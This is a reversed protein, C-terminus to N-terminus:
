RIPKEMYEKQLEQMQKAREQMQAASEEDFLIATRRIALKMMAKSPKYSFEMDDVIMAADRRSVGSTRLAAVAESKTLGAKMAIKVTRRMDNWAENHMKMSREYASRMDDLDVKSMDTAVDRLTKAAARKQDLYGYAQYTLGVKANLTGKRFGLLALAEDEFTYKKGSKTVTQDAANWFGTINGWFGPALGKAFTSASKEATVGPDRINDFLEVLEGAAIDLGIFPSLAEWIADKARDGADGDRSLASLPKKWYAYPDLWGLDMYQVHGDEDRGLFFLSSNRSWEPLMQRVAEEEEDDVGLIAASMASIGAMMGAGLALGVGKAIVAPNGYGLAKADKHFYRFKHYTTRIVEAPFSPFAGVVPFRRLAQIGKGVLSYTPYTNRIREAAEKEADVNSMAYQKMLMAKENEFGMIKWFDDGLAYFEQAYNLLASLKSKKAAQALWGESENVSKILEQLERYNPADYLVGLKLLKNIYERSGHVDKGTFYTKVVKASNSLETVDWHGSTLSFMSASLFNRVATTPALVTKGYKVAGNAIVLAKYWDPEKNSGVADQLAQAFEPYTYMGNLPSYVDSADGAIKKHAGIPRNSEDFLLGLGIAADKMQRLFATNNVLRTMKTASKAYNVAPDEYEGLLARIEPAIQKRTKLVSLDKSGLKSESIFRGMSDYATGEHLILDVKKAAAKVDGNYQGALYNVAALYVDEPVKKPWEPDDFARYSRHLYNDYNGVITEILDRKQQAEETKGESELNAADLLLEDIYANSLSQIQARMKTLVNVMSLTLQVNNRDGKLYDNIEKRTGAKLQAYPKKYVEQVKNYFDTLIFRQQSDNANMAGDRAIKLDFIERPLLGRPALQRKVETKIKDFFTKNSGGLQNYADRLQHPLTNLSYLISGLRETRKNGLAALIRFQEERTGRLISNTFIARELTTRGATITAKSKAGETRGGEIIAQIAARDYIKGNDIRRIEDISPDYRLNEIEPFQNKTANYSVTIMEKLNHADDGNKWKIGPVGISAKGELQRDHPKLHKTSGFKLASSIMNELRRTLAIDSLGAPDGVFVLDNNFAYNAVANYIRRGGQGTEVDAVDIWVSDGKQFVLAMTYKDPNIKWVKAGGDDFQPARAFPMGPLQESFIDEIKKKSSIPLQFVDDDQALMTWAALLPDSGIVKRSEPHLSFMANIEKRDEPSADSLSYILGLVDGPKGKTIVERSQKLLYRMDSETIKALNMFGNKRLWARIAGILEQATRVVFPKHHEAMHALLEEAIIAYSLERPQDKYAEEYASLSMGYKEALDRVAKQGGIQMYLKGMISTVSSGFLGRLGLHTYVEHFIMREVTEADHVQDLNIWIENTKQDFLANIKKDNASRLQSKIREPFDDVTNAIKISVDVAWNKSINEVVKEAEAKTIKPDFNTGDSEVFSFRGANPERYMGESIQFDKNRGKNEIFGFNKYFRVLRSRSTTGHNDNPLGPSLLIRVNHKDAFEVIRRIAETGIGNGQNEKPVVINSIVIENSRSRYTLFLSKLGLESEISDALDNLSSQSLDEGDLSFHINSDTPKERDTVGFEERLSEWAQRNISESTDSNLENYKEFPLSAYAKDLEIEYEDELKKFANDYGPSGRKLGKAVAMQKVYLNKTRTLIPPLDSSTKKVPEQNLKAEPKTLPVENVKVQEVPKVLAKIKSLSDATAYNNGSDFAKQDAFVMFMKQKNGGVTMSHDAIIQGDDSVWSKPSRRKWPRQADTLTGVSMDTGDALANAKSAKSIEDSIPKTTDGTKLWEKFEDVSMSTIPGVKWGKSYNKSYGTKARLPSDYGLMVKHEDFSGDPNIQDVIFVKESEPNPGVFVDVHDGDAGETKKIYGYHSHMEVEWKKGKSDTGSRISGKPNEIAIDLGHIRAHGKRYNGAEKQAETPEPLDNEPSTAAESAAIDLQESVSVGASPPPETLAEPTIEPPANPTEEALGRSAQAGERSRGQAQARAQTQRHENRASWILNTLAKSQQDIDSLELAADIQKWDAGMTVAHDVLEAVARDDYDLDVEYDTETYTEGAKEPSVMSIFDADDPVSTELKWSDFAAKRADRALQRKAILEAAYQGREGTIHDLAAGVIRAERVGLKEGALAKQIASKAHVVSMSVDPNENASKFWDPNISPTRGVIRDNSDRVFSVGGGQVLERAARELQSRYEPRTLRADNMGAPINADVRADAKGPVLKTEPPYTESLESVPQRNVIPEVSAQDMLRRPEGFLASDEETYDIAPSESRIPTNKIQQQENWFKEAEQASQRQQIFEESFGQTGNNAIPNLEGDNFNSAIPSRSLVKQARYDTQERLLQNIEDDVSIPADLSQEISEPTETLRPYAPHKSVIKQTEDEVQAGPIESEWATTGDPMVIMRQPKHELQLPAVEQNPSYIISEGNAPADIDNDNDTNADSNKIDVYSRIAGTPAGMTAGAGAGVVGQEASQKFMELYDIAADTGVREGLYQIINQNFETAFEITGAAAAVKSTNALAYKVAGDTIQRQAEGSRSGFLFKPLMRELIGVSLGVGTAVSIDNSSPLTASNNKRREEAVDGAVSLATTPMNLMYPVSGAIVEPVATAFNDATKLTADVVGNEQYNKAVKDFTFSNLESDYYDGEANPKRFTEGLSEAESVQRNYRNVQQQNFEEPTLQSEENKRGQRFDEGIMMMQSSPDGAIGGYSMSELGSLQGQSRTAESGAMRKLVGASFRAIGDKLAMLVQADGEKKNSKGVENKIGLKANIEDNVSVKPAEPTEDFQDFPNKQAASPRGEDFQDFPNSM